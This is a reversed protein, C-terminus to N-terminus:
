KTPSPQKRSSHIGRPTLGGLHARWIPYVLTVEAAVLPIVSMVKRSSPM